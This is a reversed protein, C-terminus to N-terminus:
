STLKIIFHVHFVIILLLSESPQHQTDADEKCGNPAVNQILRIM